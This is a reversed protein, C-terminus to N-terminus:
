SKPGNNRGVLGSKMSVTAAAVLGDATKGFQEPRSPRVENLSGCLAVVPIGDFINNRGVLGSKMSVDNGSDILILRYYM